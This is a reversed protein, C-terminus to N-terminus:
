PVICRLEPLGWEKRQAADEIRWSPFEPIDDYSVEPKEEFLKECNILKVGEDVVTVNKGFFACPQQTKFGFTCNRLIIRMPEEAKAVVAASMTMETAECNEFVIERIGNGDQWPANPLGSLSVM